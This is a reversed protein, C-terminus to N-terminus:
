VVSATVSDLYKRIASIPSLCPVDGWRANLESICQNVAVCSPALVEGLSRSCRGSGGMKEGRVGSEVGRRREKRLGGECLRSGARKLAMDWRVGGLGLGLIAICCLFGRRDGAVLNEM